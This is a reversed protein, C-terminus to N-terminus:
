WKQTLRVEDVYKRKIRRKLMQEVHQVAAEGFKEKVMDQYAKRSFYHEFARDRFELVESATLHKTPLPLTEYALPSYGQWTDPLRIGRALAEEYLRSGPWAMATYFNVYECNFEEAMRLTAEMSERTDDPLGFIFNGIIHLGVKRTLDVAEYIRGRRFDKRVGQRVEEQGSEIGYCVWRIGAARMAKLLGETVTDVRAYVWINVDGARPALKECLEMIRRPRFTFLDDTVRLYKVRYIKVLHEFDEVVRDVDRLRIGPGGYVTNVVCYSCNFPCGLSTYLIGYPGRVALNSLCQWNHARYSEMPLLDWAIMPLSNLDVLSAPPHHVIRNDQRYWLGEIEGVQRAAVNKRLVLLLKELPLFAEGQCVFDVKEEVLTREPLATPHRGGFLTRIGSDSERVLKLTKSAHLMRITHAFFGVLLPKKELIRTATEEPTLFEADADIVSVSFGKARLYGSLLGIDLPPAFGSFESLSGFTELRGGPKVLVLDQWDETM